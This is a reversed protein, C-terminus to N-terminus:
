PVNLREWRARFKTAEDGPTDTTRFPIFRSSYTSSAIPIMSIGSKGCGSVSTSLTARAVHPNQKHLSNASCCWSAEFATPPPMKGRMPVSADFSLVEVNLPTLGLTEPVQPQASPAAAASDFLGAVFILDLVNVVGDGNVDVTLNAGANGLESAVVVLDLINVTGDKNVDAAIPPAETDSVAHFTAPGEIGAASVEVTNTGLNPGLTLTSQARGNADTRTNTISLTGGGMTVAFTASVGVLASGNEDQAEIIFPQSLPALSAGKQNDGSIKLLAPHARNEFEVTVGRSQLTPIHTRISLHSLPNSQM